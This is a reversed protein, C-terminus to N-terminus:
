EDRAVDVGCTLRQEVLKYNFPLGFRGRLRRYRQDTRPQSASGRMLMRAQASGPFSLVNERMRLARAQGSHNIHPAVGFRQNMLDDRTRYHVM